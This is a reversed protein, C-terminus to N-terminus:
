AYKLKLKLIDNKLSMDYEIFFMKKEHTKISNNRVLGGCKYTNNNITVYSVIVHITNFIDYIESNFGVYSPFAM